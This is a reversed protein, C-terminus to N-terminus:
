LRIGFERAMNHKVIRRIAEDDANPSLKRVQTTLDKERDRMQSEAEDLSLQPQKHDLMMGKQRLIALRAQALTVFRMNEKLKSAFETPSDGDPNATTKLQRAAEGDTVAAGSMERITQNLETYAQATFKTYDALSKKREASPELGVWESYKTMGQKMKEPLTLYEPKFSQQMGALRDLRGTNAIMQKEIEDIASKGLGSQDQPGGRGVGPGMAIKLPKGSPDFEVAMGGPGMAPQSVAQSRPVYRFGTPSNADPIQHLPEDKPPPMFGSVPQMGGRSGFRQFAPKGDPGLGAVPQGYTEQNPEKQMAALLTSPKGELRMMDSLMQPDRMMAAPDMGPQGTPNGGPRRAFDTAGGMRAQVRALAQDKQEKEAMQQKAQEMQLDVMRNQRAGQMYGQQGQGFGQAGQMLLRMRAGPDTQAQGAALLAPGLSLLGSYLSQQRDVRPDYDLLNM